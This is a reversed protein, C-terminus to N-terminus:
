QLPEREVADIGVGPNGPTDKVRLELRLPLQTKQLMMQATYEVPRGDQAQGRVEVSLPFRGPAVNGRYVRAIGGVRMAYRERDDVTREILTQDGARISMATVSFRRAPSTM